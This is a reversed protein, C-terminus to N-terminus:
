KKRLNSFLKRRDGTSNAIVGKNISMAYSLAAAMSPVGSGSAVPAPAKIEKVVPVAVDTYSETNEKEMDESKEENYPFEVLAIVKEEAVKESSTVTPEITDINSEDATEVTETAVIDDIHDLMSGRPLEVHETGTEVEINNEVADAGTEGIVAREDKSKTSNNTNRTRKPKQYYIKKETDTAVDWMDKMMQLVEDDEAEMGMQERVELESAIRFKEFAEEDSVQNKTNKMKKTHAPERDKKRNRKRKTTTVKTKGGKITDKKEVDSSDEKASKKVRATTKKATSAGVKRKQSILHLVDIRVM